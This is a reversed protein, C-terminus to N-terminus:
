PVVQTEPTATKEPITTEKTISDVVYKVGHEQMCQLPGLKLQDLLNTMAAELTRAYGAVSPRNQPQVYVWWM